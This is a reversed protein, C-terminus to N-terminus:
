KNIVNKSYSEILENNLTKIIEIGINILMVELAILVEAHARVGRKRERQEYPSM